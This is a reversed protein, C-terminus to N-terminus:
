SNGDAKLVVIGNEDFGICYFWNSGNNWFIFEVCHNLEALSFETERHAIERSFLPGMGYPPGLLEIVEEKGDGVQIEEFKQQRKHEYGLWFSRPHPLLQLIAIPM